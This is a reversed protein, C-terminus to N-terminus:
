FCFFDQHHRNSPGRLPSLWGLSIVSRFIQRVQAVNLVKGHREVISIPGFNQMNWPKNFDGYFQILYNGICLIYIMYILYCCCIVMPILTFARSEWSAILCRAEQFSVGGEKSQHWPVVELHKEGMLNTVSTAQCRLTKRLFFSVYVFRTINM